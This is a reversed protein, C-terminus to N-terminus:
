NVLLDKFKHSCYNDPVVLGQEVGRVPYQTPTIRRANITPPSIDIENFVPQPFLEDTKIRYIGTAQFSCSLGCHEIRPTVTYMDNVVRRLQILDVVPQQISLALLPHRLIYGLVLFVRIINVGLAFTETLHLLATDTKENGQSLGTGSFGEKKDNMGANDSPEDAM